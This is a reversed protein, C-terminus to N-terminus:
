GPIKRNINEKYRILIKNDTNEKYTRWHCCWYIIRDSTICRGCLGLDHVVVSLSGFRSRSFVALASYIIINEKHLQRLKSHEKYAKSRLPNVAAPFTSSISGGGMSSSVAYLGFFRGVPVLDPLSRM